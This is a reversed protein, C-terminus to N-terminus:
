QKMAEETVRLSHEMAEVGAYGALVERWEEFDARASALLSRAEDHDGMLALTRATALRDTLSDFLTDADM